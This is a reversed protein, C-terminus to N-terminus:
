QGTVTERISRDLPSKWDGKLPEQLNGKEDRRAEISMQYLAMQRTKCIIGRGSVGRNRISFFRFVSAASTRARRLPGCAVISSGSTLCTRCCISADISSSLAPPGNLYLSNSSPPRVWFRLLITSQQATLMMCCNVPELMIL